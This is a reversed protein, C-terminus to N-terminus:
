DAATNSNQTSPAANLGGMVFLENGTGGRWWLSKRTITTRRGRRGTRCCPNPPTKSSSHRRQWLRIQDRDSWQSFLDFCLVASLTGIETKTRAGPWTQTQLTELWVLRRLSPCRMLTSSYLYLSPNLDCPCRLLFPNSYKVWLSYCTKLRNLREGLALDLIIFLIRDSFSLPTKHTKHSRM